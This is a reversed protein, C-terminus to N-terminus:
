HRRARHYRYKNVWIGADSGFPESLSKAERDTQADGIVTNLHLSALAAEGDGFSIDQGVIGMDNLSANFINNAVAFARSLVPGNDQSLGDILRIALALIIRLVEIPMAPVKSFGNAIDSRFLPAVACKVKLAGSANPARLHHVSIPLYRSNAAEHTM